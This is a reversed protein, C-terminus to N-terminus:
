IGHAQFSLTKVYLDHDKVFDDNENTLQVWGFSVDNITGSTETILASEAAAALASVDDYSYHYVNVEITYIYGCDKAGPVKGSIRAVLYPASETEPIVVPYVKHKDGAKNLGVLSQVAPDNELIYTIAKLM